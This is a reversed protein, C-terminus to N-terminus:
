KNQMHIHICIHVCVQEVACVHFDPSLRGLWNEGKVMLIRLMLGLSDPENACIKDDRLLLNQCTSHSVYIKFPNPQTSLRSVLPALTKHNTKCLFRPITLKMSLVHPNPLSSRSTDHSFLVNQSLCFHPVSLVPSPSLAVSSCMELFSFNLHLNIDHM